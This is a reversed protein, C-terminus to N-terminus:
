NYLIALPYVDVRYSAVNEGPRCVFTFNTETLDTVEVSVGDESAVVERDYIKM